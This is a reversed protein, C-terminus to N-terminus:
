EKISDIVKKIRLELQPDFFVISPLSRYELRIGNDKIAYEGIIRGSEKIEKNFEIDLAEIIFPINLMGYQAPYTREPTVYERALRNSFNLQLSVAITARPLLRSEKKYLNKPTISFDKSSNRNAERWEKETFKYRNFKKNDKEYFPVFSHGNDKMEKLLKHIEFTASYIDNHPESRLEIIAGCGDKPLEIPPITIEKNKLYFMELELGYLINM